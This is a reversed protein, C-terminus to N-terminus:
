IFKMCCKINESNMYVLALSHNFIDRVIYSQRCLSLLLQITHLHFMVTTYIPNM